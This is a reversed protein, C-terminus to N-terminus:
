GNWTEQLRNLKFVVEHEIDKTIAVGEQDTAPLFFLKKAVSLAANKLGFEPGSLVEAHIVNGQSSIRLRLRVVGEILFQRAREPYSVKVSDGNILMPHSRIPKGLISGLDSSDGAGASKEQAVDHATIPQKLNEKYQGAHKKTTTARKKERHRPQLKGESIVGNDTAPTKHFFLAVGYNKSKNISAHPLFVYSFVLFLLAHALISIFFPFATIPRLWCLFGKNM